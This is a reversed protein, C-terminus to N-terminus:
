RERWDAPGRVGIGNSAAWSSDLVVRAPRDLGSEAITSFHLGTVGWRHHEAIHRALDARSFATSGGLHLIGSVDTRDALDILAAALDDVRVPSRYEDTFFTMPRAGTIADKVAQEHMSLRKSGDGCILSTRVVVSGPAHTRVEAEAAAKWSGYDHVPDPADEEVYPDDRGAFLADTSVHVLRAGVASAAAAIHRSADVVSAREDRRYAAHVIAHPKWERVQRMVSDLHRLDLVRSPPAIIQWDDANPSTAVHSGLFGSGGTM